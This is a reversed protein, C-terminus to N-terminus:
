QNRKPSLVPPNAQAVGRLVARTVGQGTRITPAFGLLNAYKHTITAHSPHSSARPNTTYLYQWGLGHPIIRTSTM